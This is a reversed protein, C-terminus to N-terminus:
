RNIRATYARNLKTKHHGVTSCTTTEAGRRARRRTSGERTRENEGENWRTKGKREHRKLKRAGDDIASGRERAERVSACEADSEVDRHRSRHRGSAGERAM